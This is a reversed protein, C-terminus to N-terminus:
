QDTRIRKFALIQEHASITSRLILTDGISTIAGYSCSYLTTIQPNEPDIFFISDPTSYGKTKELDYNSNFIITSDPLDTYTYSEQLKKTETFEAILRMKSKEVSVTDWRGWSNSLRYVWSWKGQLLANLSDKSSIMTTNSTENSCSHLAVVSLVAIITM